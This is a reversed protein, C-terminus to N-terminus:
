NDEQIHNAATCREVLQCAALINDLTLIGCSPCSVVWAGPVGTVAPKWTPVIDASPSQRVYEALHTTACEQCVEGVWEARWGPTAPVAMYAHGTAALFHDRPGDFLEEPGFHHVSECQCNTM